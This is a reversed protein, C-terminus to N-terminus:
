PMPVQSVSSPSNIFPRSSMKREVFYMGSLFYWLPARTREKSALMARSPRSRASRKQIWTGVWRVSSRRSATGSSRDPLIAEMPMEFTESAVDALGLRQEGLLPEREPRHLIM